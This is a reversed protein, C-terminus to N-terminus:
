CICVGLVVFAFFGGEEDYGEVYHPEGVDKQECGENHDVLVGGEDLDGTEESSM